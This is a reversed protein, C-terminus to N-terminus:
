FDSRYIFIAIVQGSNNLNVRLTTPWNRDPISLLVHDGKDEATNGLALMVATKRDRTSIGCASSVKAQWVRDRHIYFDADAYQFVVDDQWIEIGRAVAVNRPTGFREILEALTMGIYSLKEDGSVVSSIAQAQVRESPVHLVLLFMFPLFLKRKM